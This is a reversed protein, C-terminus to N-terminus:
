KSLPAVVACAGGVCQYPACCPVSACSAGIGSACASMDPRPPQPTPERHCASVLFALFAITLWRMGNARRNRHVVVLQNDHSGFGTAQVLCDNGSVTASLAIPSLYGTMLTTSSSLKVVPAASANKVM